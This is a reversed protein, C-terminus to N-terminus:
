TDREEEYSRAVAEAAARAGALSEEDPAPPADLMPEDALADEVADVFAAVTAHLRQSPTQLGHRQAELLRVDFDGRISEALRPREIRLRDLERLAREHREAFDPAARFSFTRSATAM